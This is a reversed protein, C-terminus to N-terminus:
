HPKPSPAGSLARDDSAAPAAILLAGEIASKLSLAALVNMRLHAVVVRDSAATTHGPMPMDRMVELTIRIIGNIHGFAPANEFYLVPAHASAIASVEGVVSPINEIPTRVNAKKPM